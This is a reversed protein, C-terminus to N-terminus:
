KILPAFIQKSIDLYRDQENLLWEEITNAAIFYKAGPSRINLPDLGETSIDERASPLKLSDQMHMQGERSLLWNIFLRAANPHPARNILSISSGGTALHTGEKPVPTYSVPAGARMYEVIPESRPWLAISYKAKAVWDVQLRQDRIIVPEQKVLQQFYDMDLAKYFMMTSFVSFGIGATTPDNITIKGKWKPALLDYYSKIDETRVLQTNIAIPPLPYLFYRIIKHEKDAWPFQGGYWPKADRADPLILAAEILDLAGRQKVEFSTNGGSMFIDALYLGAGRESFLRAMQEAGRGFSVVELDLGYKQKFVPIAEKLGPAISGVAYIVVIREKKAEKLTKEWEAEPGTKAEAAPKESLATPIETRLSEKPACAMLLLITIVLGTAMLGPKKM